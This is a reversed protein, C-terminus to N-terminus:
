RIYNKSIESNKTEVFILIFVSFRFLVSNIIFFSQKHLIATYVSSSLQTAGDVVM